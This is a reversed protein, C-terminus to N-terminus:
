SLALRLVLLAGAGFLSLSVLAARSTRTAAEALSCGVLVLDGRRARLRAEGRYLAAAEATGQAVVAAGAAV